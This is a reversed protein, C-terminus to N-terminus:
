LSALPEGNRAPWCKQHLVSLQLQRYSICALAQDLSSRRWLSSPMLYIAEITWGLHSPNLTLWAIVRSCTSADPDQVICNNGPFHEHTFLPRRSPKKPTRIFNNATRAIRLFSKDRSSIGCKSWRLCVWQFCRWPRMEGESLYSQLTHKQNTKSKNKLPGNLLQNLALYTLM